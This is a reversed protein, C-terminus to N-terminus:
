TPATDAVKQRDGSAVRGRGSAPTQLCFTASVKKWAAGRAKSYGARLPRLGRRTCVERLGTPMSGRDAQRAEAREQLAAMWAALQARGGVRLPRLGRRTCVERLGTPM